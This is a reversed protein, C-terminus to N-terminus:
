DPGADADEAGQVRADRFEGLERLLSTAFTGRPLEFRLELADDSSGFHVSGPFLALSRRMMRVRQKELLRTTEPFMGFWNQELELARDRSRNAGTGWLLGTGTDNVGAIEGAVRADWSHQIIRMALYGNFLAARLASLAFGRTDRNLRGPRNLLELNRAGGGFRQPGFYNPAGGDPLMAARRRLGDIDGHIDRVVIRFRNCAVQGTRLKATHRIADLVQVGDIPPLEPDPQGPLHVSFWQETVAHRDKLGAYGVASFAVGAADALRKAVWRTNQGSKRVRLYLHEGEGEPAFSLQEVVEFDDPMTRIIGGGVPEGHARPLLSFDAACRLRQLEADPVM